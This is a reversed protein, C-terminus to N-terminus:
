SALLAPHMRSRSRPFALSTPTGAAPAKGFVRPRCLGQTAFPPGGVISLNNFTLNHATGGAKDTTALALTPEIMPWYAYVNTTVRPRFWNREEKIENDSLTASWAKVCCRAGDHYEASSYANGTLRLSTGPTGSPSTGNSPSSIAGHGRSWFLKLTSNSIATLGMWHWEGNTIASTLTGTSSADSYVLISSTSADRQCIIASGTSGLSFITDYGNTATYHVWMSISFNYSSPLGSILELYDTTASTNSNIAM